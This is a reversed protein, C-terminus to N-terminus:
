RRIWAKPLQPRVLWSRVLACSGTALMLIGATAWAGIAGSTVLESTTAVGGLGTLLAYITQEESM